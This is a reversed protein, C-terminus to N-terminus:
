ISVLTFVSDGVTIRYKILKAYVRDWAEQMISLADEDKLTWGDTMFAVMWMVTPIYIGRWRKGTQCGPPLHGNTVKQKGGKGGKARKGPMDIITDEIKVMGQFVYTM